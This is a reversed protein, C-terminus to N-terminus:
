RAFRKRNGFGGGGLTMVDVVIAIMLLLVEFGSIGSGIVLVYMLTTWPMFIIGLVPWINSGFAENWRSTDAIWWIVNAVRPGLFALITFLCCM